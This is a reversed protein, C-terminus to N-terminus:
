GLMNKYICLVQMYEKLMMNLVHNIVVLQFQNILNKKVKNLVKLKHKNKMKILVKMKKYIKKQTLNNMLTKQFLIIKQLNKLHYNTKFVKMMVINKKYLLFQNTLVNKLSYSVNQKIQNVNHLQSILQKKQKVNM